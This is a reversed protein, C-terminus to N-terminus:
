DLSKTITVRDSSFFLEALRSDRGVMQNFPNIKLINFAVFSGVLPSLCRLNVVQQMPCMYYFATLNIVDGVQVM